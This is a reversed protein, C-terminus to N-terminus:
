CFSWVKEAGLIGWNWVLFGETWCVRLNWVLFRINPTSSFFKPYQFPTTRTHFRHTSSLPDTHFQPSNLKLKNRITIFVPNFLSSCMVKGLHSVTLDCSLLYDKTSNWFFIKFNAFFHQGRRPSEASDCLGELFNWSM